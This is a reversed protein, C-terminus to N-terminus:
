YGILSAKVNHRRMSIREFFDTSPLHHPIVDREVNFVLFGQCPKKLPCICGWRGWTWTIICFNLSVSLLLYPIDTTNSIIHNIIWTWPGCDCLCHCCISISICDRWQHCFAPLHVFSNLESQIQLSFQFYLDTWDLLLTASFKVVSSALPLLPSLRPLLAVALGVWRGMGFFLFHKSLAPSGVWVLFTLSDQHSSKWSQVAATPQKDKRSKTSKTKGRPKGKGKKTSQNSQTTTLSHIKDYIHCYNIMM